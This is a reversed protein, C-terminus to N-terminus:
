PPSEKEPGFIIQSRECRLITGVTSEDYEGMLKSYVKVDACLVATLKRQTANEVM